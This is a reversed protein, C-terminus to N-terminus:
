LQKDVKPTLTNKLGRLAEILEPVLKEAQGVMYYDCQSFVPADPDSNIAIITEAHSVGIMHQIAGSIGLALYVKPSVATGTQGVQYIREAFGQEVAARSAGTEVSVGSFTERIVHTLNQLLQEYRERSQLGKGGSIIVEADFNVKGSGQVSELLRLSVDQSDLEVAHKIVEGSRHPDPDLRKMVGQRATAMQCPSDKTTITAMVNGGLAPRTQMLVAIRGKRSTDRIALDTCDATLGCGVRYSIMPALVRGFPTAGYLFIQPEGRRFLDSVAKAFPVPDFHSLVPHDILFVKDAGSAILEDSLTDIGEGAVVVGVNVELSDALERAKGLLEFTVPHVRNEAELEAMVWVDGQYSPTSHHYGQLMDDLIKPNIALTGPALLTAKVTETIQDPTEIGNQSLWDSVQRYEDCEKQTGEFGRDLLSARREPLLYGSAEAADVTESEQGALREALCHALADASDIRLAKRDPKPPPFVRVVRTKSGPVGLATAQIDEAGWQVLETHQARRYATFSPFLPYEYKAVTVVAPLTVPVVRQSGGTTVQWFELADETKQVGTAFAVCPIGLEDALQAPVQATDGDVSQMGAVVYYDDSGDLMEAVIKRTAYALPNATAWTDAGGMLRDTLLVAADAYRALGYRLVEAAMPPGMTLCILKSQPDGGLAKMRAAFALAQADLENIV